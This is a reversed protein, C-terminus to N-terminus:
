RRRELERDEEETPDGVRTRLSIVFCDSGNSASSIKLREDERRGEGEREERGERTRM